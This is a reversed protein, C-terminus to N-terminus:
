WTLKKKTLVRLLLNIFTLILVQFGAPIVEKGTIIQAIGDTLLILANVWITKSDYWTKGTEMDSELETLIGTAADIPTVAPTTTSDDPVVAQQITQDSNSDM